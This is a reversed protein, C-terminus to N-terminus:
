RHSSSSGSSAGGGGGAHSASGMSGGGSNSSSSRAGGGNGSISARSSGSNGQYGANSVRQGGGFANRARGLWGSTVGTSVPPHRPNVAVMVPTQRGSKGVGGVPMHVPGKHFHGGSAGPCQVLTAGGVLFPSYFGWGFPGFYAYQPLWAWADMGVDFYWGMAGAQGAAALRSAADYNAAAEYQSRINSWAYLEDDPGLDLREARLLGVLETQKGKGLRISQGDAYVQAAGAIVGATAMASDAKLRYLGDKEIVMLANGCVVEIHSGKLVGIVELMAEGQNLAVRPSVLSPSIMQIQTNAGIRLFTGPLLLIEAKGEATWFFDQEGLYSRTSAGANIASGNLYAVGEIYNVLGPRASITLGQGAAWNAAAVLLLGFTLKKAM